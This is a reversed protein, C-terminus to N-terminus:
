KTVDKLGTVSKSDKVAVARGDAITLKLGTFSWNAANAISGASKAAIEVDRFEFDELPSEAYSSVAFARQM